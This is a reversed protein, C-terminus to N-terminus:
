ALGRARKIAAPKVPSAPAPKITANESTSGAAILLARPNAYAYAAPMWSGKADQYIQTSPQSGRGVIMVPALALLVTVLLLTNGVTKM